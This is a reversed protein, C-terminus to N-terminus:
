EEVKDTVIGGLLDILESVVKSMTQTMIARSAHYLSELDDGENAASQKLVDMFKIRKFTFNETLVFSVEDNWVLELETVIKGSEAHAVVNQSTLDQAIIKVKAADAIGCMVCDSGLEFNGECESRLVWDTILATVSKETRVISAPLDGLARRLESVFGDAKNTSASNVMLYDGDRDYMAEMYSTQPLVRPLLTDKVRETIERKEAKGVERMENIKIKSVIEGVHAKVVKSPVVRKETRSMIAWDSAVDVAMDKSFPTPAVFGSSIIDLDACPKFSRQLLMLHWDRIDANFSYEEPMLYVTMQNFWM